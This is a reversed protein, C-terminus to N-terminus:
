LRKSIFFEAFEWDLPTTVKVNEEEGDILHIPNGAAEYVAADDTFAPEYEITYAEKLLAGNFVQPTQILRFKTRDALAWEDDELYRLTSSVPLAPIACGHEAAHTYLKDILKVSLFPRAADHVAVLSNTCDAAELANKVSHFREEGGHVVTHPIKIKNTEIVSEWYEIFKEPLAIIIEIDNNYSYFKELSYALLPKNNLQRFQKPISGGIRNGSGGAVIISIKKIHLANTM